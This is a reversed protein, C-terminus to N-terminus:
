SLVEGDSCLGRVRFLTLLPVPKRRFPPVACLVTFHNGFYILLLLLVLILKLKENEADEEGCKGTKRRSIREGSPESPSQGTGRQVQKCTM